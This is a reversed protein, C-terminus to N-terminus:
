LTEENIVPLSVTFFEETKTVEINRNGLLAYREWLNRLGHGSEAVVRKPHLVNRFVVRGEAADMYLEVRMPMKESVNNHKVVNETLLQLTLPPVLCDLEDKELRVDMEICDGLRVEHLYWYSRMFEMEERLSVLRTGQCRLVYRYIDSLHQTFNVATEPDYQIEAILTNLSNFLFHPNLQQQLANYKAEMMEAELRQMRKLLSVSHSVSKSFLLLGIAVMEVFWIFFILFYTGNEMVLPHRMGGLYRMVALMVYNMLWLLCAALAYHWWFRRQELYYVPYHSGIWDALALVAFGVINPIMVSCVLVYGYMEVSSLRLATHNRLLIASLVGICTFLVGPLLYRSVVNRMAQLIVFFDRVVCGMDCGFWM